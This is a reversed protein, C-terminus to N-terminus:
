SVQDVLYRFFETQPLFLHHQHHPDSLPWPLAKCASSYLHLMSLSAALVLLNALQHKDGSKNNFGECAQTQESM